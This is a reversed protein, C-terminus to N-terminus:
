KERSKEYSQPIIVTPNNNIGSALGALAGWASDRVKPVGLEKPKHLYSAGKEGPERLGRVKQVYLFAECRCM